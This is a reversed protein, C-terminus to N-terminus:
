DRGGVVALGEARWRLMGGALNAVRTLGARQLLVAAQASRTGSRCVTVVARAPDIEGLRAALAPLPMLVAGEIHGLADTFEAPERVDIVQVGSQREQLATPEIEWLGGFTHRLPAWDPERLESPAAAAGDEPQGCRLNAPVAIAILKPHPLGLAQM